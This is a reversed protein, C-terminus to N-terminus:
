EEDSEAEEKAEPTVVAEDDSQEAESPVQPSKKARKTSSGPKDATAKRKRPTAPAPSKKPKTASGPVSSDGGNVYAKKLDGIIHRMAKPTREGFTFGKLNLAPNHHFFLQTMLAL